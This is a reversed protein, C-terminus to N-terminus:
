LVYLVITLVPQKKERIGVSLSIEGLVTQQSSVGSAPSRTVKLAFVPPPLPSLPRLLRSDPHTSVCSLGFQFTERKDTRRHSHPHTDHRMRVIKLYTAVVVFFDVAWFYVLGRIGHFYARTARLHSLRFSPIDPAINTAM